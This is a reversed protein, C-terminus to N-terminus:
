HIALHKRKAFFYGSVIIIAKGLAAAGRFRICPQFYTQFLPLLLLEQLRSAHTCISEVVTCYITTSFSIIIFDEKAFSIEEFAMEVHGGPKM